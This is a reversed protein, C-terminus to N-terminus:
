PEDFHRIVKAVDGYNEINWYKRSQDIGTETGFHSCLFNYLLMEVEGTPCVCYCKTRPTIWLSDRGMGGRIIRHREGKNVKLALHSCQEVTSKVDSNM